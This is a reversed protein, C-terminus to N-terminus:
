AATADENRSRFYGRLRDRLAPKRDTLQWLGQWDRKIDRAPDFDNRWLIEERRVYGRDRKPGHFHHLLLGEVCGINRLIHRDAREQWAACWTTYTPCRRTLDRSLCSEVQGLFACAMYRDASGVVAFDILGGLHDWADRRCAWAYGPHWRGYADPRVDRDQGTGAQRLYQAVFGDFGSLPEHRPGLDLAHSFMQVVSYHQLQQITEAVIDPRAFTVDADIWAVYRWDAPLRAVGLNILNEKHWLEHATRLRIHRPNGDETVEFPRDGYAAEVTYLEAGADTIHRAFDRYLSYRSRYRVPNVIPAIVYLPADIPKIASM